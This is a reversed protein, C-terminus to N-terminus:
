GEENCKEETQLELAKRVEKLVCEGLEYALVSPQSNYRAKHQEITVLYMGRGFYVSCIGLTSRLGEESKLSYVLYDGGKCKTSYSSICHSMARGEKALAAPSDLLEAEGKGPVSIRNPLRTYIPADFPQSEKQLELRSLESSLRDHEEQIRKWSWKANFVTGLEGCMRRTDRIQFLVDRIATVDTGTGAELLVRSILNDYGELEGLLLLLGRDAYKLATKPLVFLHNLVLKMQELETTAGCQVLKHALVANASISQSCLRKWLSKGLGKKLECPSYGMAVIPSVNPIGDAVCELILPKWVQTPLEGALPARLTRKYPGNYFIAHLVTKGIGDVLMKYALKHAIKYAAWPQIKFHLKFTDEIDGCVTLGNAQLVGRLFEYRGQSLVERCSVKCGGVRVTYSENDPDLEFGVDAINVGSM